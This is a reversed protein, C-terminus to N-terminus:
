EAAEFEAKHQLILRVTGEWDEFTPINKTRRINRVWQHADYQPINVTAAWLKAAMELEDREILAVFRDYDKRSEDKVELKMEGAINKIKKIQDPELGQWLNADLIEDIPDGYSADEVCLEINRMSIVHQLKLQEVAERVHWCYQVWPGSGFLATELKRDYNIEVFKFRNRSAADLPNRGVYQRDAGRGFTNAAIMCRFNPHVKVVKDPFTCYGNALPANLFLMAAAAWADGEDILAFGGFEIAKRLHTGIYEGSASQYGSAEYRTLAPSLPYFDLELAEALQEGLKSKGTGAPGVAYVHRGRSLYRLIQGFKEHRPEDSLLRPPKNPLQLEIRRPLNEQIARLTTELSLRSVITEIESTLKSGLGLANIQRATEIKVAEAVQSTLQKTAERVRTEFVLNDLNDSSSPPRKPITRGSSGDSFKSEAEKFAEELDSGPNEGFDNQDLLPNQGFGGLEITPKNDDKSYKDGSVLRKRVWNRGAAYCRILGVDTKNIDVVGLSALWRKLLTRVDPDLPLSITERDNDRRSHPGVGKGTLYRISQELEYTDTPSETPM